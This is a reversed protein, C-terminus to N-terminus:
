TAQQMVEMRLIVRLKRLRNLEEIMELSGHPPESRDLPLAAMWLSGRNRLQTEINEIRGRIRLYRQYTRRFSERERPDGDQLQSFRVVENHEPQPSGDRLWPLMDELIGQLTDAMVRTIPAATRWQDAEQRAEQFTLSYPTTPSEWPDPSDRLLEDLEPDSDLTEVPTFLTPELLPSIKGMIWLGETREVLDPARYIGDEYIRMIEEEGPTMPRYQDEPDGTNRVMSAGPTNSCTPLQVLQITTSSCRESERTQEVIGTTREVPNVRIDLTTTSAMPSFSTNRQDPTNMEDTTDTGDMINTQGTTNKQDTTNRQDTTNKQDTTNRQDTTFRLILSM